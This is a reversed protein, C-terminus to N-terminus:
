FARTGICILAYALAVRRALRTRRGTALRQGRGGEGGAWGRRAGARGGCRRREREAAIDSM